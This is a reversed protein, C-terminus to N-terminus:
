VTEFFVIVRGVSWKHYRCDKLCPDPGSFLKDPVIKLGDRKETAKKM